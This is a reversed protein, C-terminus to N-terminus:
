RRYKDIIPKVEEYKAYLGTRAEDIEKRADGKYVAHEYNDSASRFREFAIAFDTLADREAAMDGWTMTKTM